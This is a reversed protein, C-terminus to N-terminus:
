VEEIEVQGEMQRIYEKTGDLRKLISMARNYEQRYYRKADEKSEPLYYGQGDQDNIICFDRRAKELAQRLSRDKLGTLSVLTDHKVANSKGKHLHGLVTAVMEDTAQYKM